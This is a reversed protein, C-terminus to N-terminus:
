KQAAPRDKGSSARSLDDLRATINSQTAQLASVAERLRDMSEAVQRNAGRVDDALAKDATAAFQFFKSQDASVRDIRLTIVSSVTEIRQELSAIENSLSMIVDRTVPPAPPVSSSARQRLVSVAWWLSVGCIMTCVLLQIWRKRVWLIDRVAEIICDGVPIRKAQTSLRIEEANELGAEFSREVEGAIGKLPYLAFGAAICLMGSWFLSDGDKDSIGDAVMSVGQALWLVAMADVASEKVVKWPAALWRWLGHRRSDNTTKTGM